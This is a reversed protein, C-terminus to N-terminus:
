SAKKRGYKEQNHECYLAFEKRIHGPDLVEARDKMEFLWQFLDDCIELTAAWVMEGESNTTVFPNGLFHHSPLLDSEYQNYIKLVLREEKGNILRLHCIFENIEIQSLNPEYAQHFDKIDRIDELGFYVLMKDHISEGIICLIGDLFVLRHPFINCEKSNHFQIGIPKKQSIVYDMKKKLDEIHNLCVATTSTQKYLNFQVFANQALLLKNKVIQQYYHEINNKDSTKHFSAQLALWESFTFEMKIKCQEKLPMVFGDIILSMVNFRNLFEQFEYLKEETIGLSDCFLNKDKKEGLSELAVLFKWFNDNLILQTESM